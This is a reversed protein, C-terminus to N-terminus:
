APDNHEPLDPTTQRAFDPIYGYEKGDTDTYLVPQPLADHENPLQAWFQERPDINLQTRFLRIVGSIGDQAIEPTASNNIIDDFFKQARMDHLKKFLGWLETRDPIKKNRTM